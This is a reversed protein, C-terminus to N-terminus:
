DTLGTMRFFEPVLYIIDKENSPNQVILLPQKPDSIKVNYTQELYEKFSVKRGKLDFASNPSKTFDVGNIKYLRNNGYKSMVSHTSM